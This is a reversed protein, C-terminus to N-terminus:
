PNREFRATLGASRGEDVPLTIGHIGNVRGDVLFLATEAIEEVPTFSRPSPTIRAIWDRQAAYEPATRIAENMPTVTNGPAIANIAVNHPALELAAARTFASVAAKATSYLAFGPSAVLGAISAINVIRGSKRAIMSPTVAVTMRITGKLNVDLMQDIQADSVEALPTPFWVGAANILIDPHGLSNEVNQILKRVQAPYAVDVIFPLARGGQEVISQAALEAKEFKASATVAVICGERALRRGIALGIGSSGGTVLAIKGDLTGSSM